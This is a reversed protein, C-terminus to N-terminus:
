LFQPAPDSEEIPTKYERAAVGNADRIESGRPPNYYQMTKRYLVLMPSILVGMGKRTTDAIVPSNLLRYGWIERQQQDLIISQDFRALAAPTLHTAAYDRGEIAQGTRRGHTPLYVIEPAEATELPRDVEISIDLWSDYLSSDKLISGLHYSGSMPVVDGYEFQHRIVWRQGMAKLLEAHETGFQMFARAERASVAPGDFAYCLFRHGPLPIRELEPGFHFIGRQAEAGGLSHGVFAIDTSTKYQPLEKLREAYNELRHLYDDARRRLRDFQRRLKEISAESLVEPIHTGAKRGERIVGQEHNIQGKQKRIRERPTGDEAEELNNALAEDYSNLLQRYLADVGKELDATTERWASVCQVCRKFKENLSLTDDIFPNDKEVAKNANALRERGLMLYGVWIPITRDRFFPLEYPDGYNRDGRGPASSPNLDAEVSTWGNMNYPDSATSRYLKIHPMSIGSCAPVLTYNFDGRNDDVWSDVRFWRRKGDADNPAAILAGVRWKEDPHRRILHKKCIVHALMEHFNHWDEQKELSPFAQLAEQQDIYPKFLNRGAMTYYGTVPLHSIKRGTYVRDRMTDPVRVLDVIANFRDQDLEQSTEPPPSGLLYDLHARLSTITPLTQKSYDPLQRALGRLARVSIHHYAPNRRYADFFVDVTGDGQFANLAKQMQKLKLLLREINQQEINNVGINMRWVHEPQLPEGDAILSDLNFDYRYQIYDLFRQGYEDIVFEKYAAVTKRNLQEQEITEPIGGNAELSVHGNRLTYQYKNNVEVHPTWDDEWRQFADTGVTTFADSFPEQLLRQKLPANGTWADRHVTPIDLESIALLTRIKSANRFLNLMRFKLSTEVKVVEINLVNKESVTHLFPIWQKFRHAMGSDPRRVRIEWRGKLTRMNPFHFETRQQTVLRTGLTHLINAAAQVIEYREGRIRAQVTNKTFNPNDDPITEDRPLECSWCNDDIRQLTNM